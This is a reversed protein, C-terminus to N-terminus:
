NSCLLITYLPRRTNYDSSHFKDKYVEIANQTEDFIIPIQKQNNINNNILKEIDINSPLPQLLLWKRSELFEGQAKVKKLLKSLIFLQAALAYYIYKLAMDTNARPDDKKFEHGMEHIAVNLDKSGPNDHDALM